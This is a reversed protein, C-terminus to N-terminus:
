FRSMYQLVGHTKPYAVYPDHGHETAYTDSEIHAHNDQCCPLNSQLSLLFAWPFSEFEKQDPFVPLPQYRILTYDHM